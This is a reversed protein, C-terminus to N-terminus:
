AVKKPTYNFHSTDEKSLQEESAWYRKKSATGDENKWFHGCPLKSLKEEDYRISDPLKTWCDVFTGIYWWGYVENEALTQKRLRFWYFRLTERRTMSLKRAEGGLLLNFEHNVTGCNLQHRPAEKWIVEMKSAIQDMIELQKSISVSM